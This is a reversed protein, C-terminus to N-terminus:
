FFQSKSTYPHSKRCLVLKSECRFASSDTIKQNCEIVSIDNCDPKNVTSRSVLALKRAHAVEADM